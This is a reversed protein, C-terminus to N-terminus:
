SPSAYERPLVFVLLLEHEMLCGVHERARRRKKQSLLRMNGSSGNVLVERNGSVSFCNLVGAKFNGGSLLLRLDTTFWLIWM